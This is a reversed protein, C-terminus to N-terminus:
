KDKNGGGKFNLPFVLFQRVSCHKTDCEKLGGPEEDKAVALFSPKRNTIIVSHILLQCAWLMCGPKLRAGAAQASARRM